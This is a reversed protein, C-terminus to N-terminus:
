GLSGAAAAALERCVPKHQQWHAAQCAVGCYRCHCSLCSVGAFWVLTMLTCTCALFKALLWETLDALLYTELLKTGAHKAHVVVAQVRTVACHPGTGKGLEHAVRHLAAQVAEWRVQGGQMGWV